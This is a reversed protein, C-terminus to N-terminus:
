RSRERQSTVALWTKQYFAIVYSGINFEADDRLEDLWEDVVDKRSSSSDPSYEDRAISYLDRAKRQKKSKRPNRRRGRRGRNLRLEDWKNFIKPLARGKLYKLLKAFDEDGEVIGERSSTFPDNGKKDM